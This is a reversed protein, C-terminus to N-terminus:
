LCYSLLSSLGLLSSLTFVMSAAKYDIGADYINHKVLEEAKKGGAIGVTKVGKLKGIQGVLTLFRESESPLSSLSPSSYRSYLFIGVVGINGAASSVVLTDGSKPHLMFKYGFYAHSGSM